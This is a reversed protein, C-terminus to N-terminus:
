LYAFSGEWFVKIKHGVRSVSCKGTEINRRFMERSILTLELCHSFPVKNEVRSGGSNSRSEKKLIKNRDRLLDVM